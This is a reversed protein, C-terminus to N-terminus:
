QLLDSPFDWGIMSLLSSRVYGGQPFLIPHKSEIQLVRYVLSFQVSGDSYSLYEKRKVVYKSLALLISKKVNKDNLLFIFFKDFDSNRSFRSALYILAHGLEELVQFRPKETILRSLLRYHQEVGLSKRISKSQSNLILISFWQSPEQAEAVAIALPEPYDRFYDYLLSSFTQKSLFSACLYEQLSLHSFEFVETYSNVVNIIGNHSEIEKIVDLYEEAPLEYKENISNYVRILNSRSFQKGGIQYTLQYAIESLFDLKRIYDFNIGYKSRREIDRDDDWKKLALLIIM